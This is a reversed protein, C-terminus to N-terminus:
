ASEEVALKAEREGAPPVCGIKTACAPDIAARLVGETADVMADFDFQARLRATAEAALQRALAPNRWLREIAGKLAAGDGVPVLLGTAGDEVVEGTGGADTAIVPTGASMAELVVHPLGEYSSNLVFADSQELYERVKPQPVDGLFVVRDAVGIKWVLAVFEARLHGDGAIVLRTQPLEPLLRILADVGKWPVLRCATMLTRGSWTPLSAPSGSASDIRAVANFITRIKKEPIGWGSVIRRLYRSPVIIQKAFRLPVTRIFDLARHAFRKPAVQYEDLTGGFWSRGVAREWAYDGVIKHVTRKGALLAALASEAGLGNVYVLDHRWAARWITLVTLAVRLPWFLDRPIRHLRFPYATDDHDRRDSLCIVEVRHGRRALAAGIRPVYSAPGGRDPPFIGTVILLRM